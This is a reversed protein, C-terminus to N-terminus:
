NSKNVVAGCHSSWNKLYFYSCFCWVRNENLYHCITFNYFLKDYLCFSIFDGTFPSNKVRYIEDRMNSFKESLKLSSTLFHFIFFYFFYYLVIRREVDLYTKPSVTLSKLRARILRWKWRWIFLWMNSDIMDVPHFFLVGNLIKTKNQKTKM